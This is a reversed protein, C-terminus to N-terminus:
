RDVALMPPVTSGSAPPMSEAGHQGRGTDGRRIPPAQWRGRRCTCGPVM